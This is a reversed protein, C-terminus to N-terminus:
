DGVCMLGGALLGVPPATAALGSALMLPPCGPRCSKWVWVAQGM